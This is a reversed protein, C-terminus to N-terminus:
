SDRPSPSTYLLCIDNSTDGIMFFSKNKKNFLDMALLVMDPKPKLPIDDCAGVIVDFFNKLSMQDLLKETVFQRKNTCKGM